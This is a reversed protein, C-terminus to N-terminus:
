VICNCACDNVNFVIRRSTRRDCGNLKIIAVASENKSRFPNTDTFRHLNTYTSLNLWSICKWESLNWFSDGNTINFALNAITPFESSCRSCTRLQHCMVAIYNDDFKRRTLCLSETWCTLRRDTNNSSTPPCLFREYFSSLLMMLHFSSSDLPRTDTPNRHVSNIVWETTTTSLM